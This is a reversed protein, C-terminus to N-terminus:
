IMLDFTLLLSILVNRNGMSFSNASVPPIYSYPYFSKLGTLLSTTAVGRRRKCRREKRSSVIGNNGIGRSWSGSSVCISNGARHLENTSEKWNQIKKYLLVPIVICPVTYQFIIMDTSTRSRHWDMGGEHRQGYPNLSPIIPQIEPM